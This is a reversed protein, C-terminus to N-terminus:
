VILPTRAEVREKMAVNMAEFWGRTKRDLSNRPFSDSRRGSSIM